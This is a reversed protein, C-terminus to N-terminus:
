KNGDAHYAPETVAVNKGPDRVGLTIRIQNSLLRIVITITNRPMSTEQYRYKVRLCELHLAHM